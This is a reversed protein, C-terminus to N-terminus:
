VISLVVKELASAADGSGTKISMDAKLITELSKKLTKINYKQLNTFFAGSYFNHIKLVAAAQADSMGQEDIMSKANLMRRVASSIASLIMVPEEGESLLKELIFIAKKLDKSEISSSLTYINTERSYGSIVALDEKTINKENKGNFLLLKEIENSISLLDTGNKEIIEVILDNSIFKGKQSFENKIFEKVEKEYQKRCDVCICNKSAICENIFEKRKVITEKKYNSLYLFILCSTDIINSLYGTFREADGAKMKQVDKVIIVRKGNFFPLTQLANLIDEVSSEQIYFVERNLNDAAILKETKSLCMDVLYPEEGAFLYVPSIKDSSIVSNFNQFKLMSM